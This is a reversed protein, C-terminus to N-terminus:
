DPMEENLDWEVAVIGSSARWSCVVCSEETDTWYSKSGDEVGKEGFYSDLKALFGEYESETMEDNATWVVSSVEDPESVLCHFSVKGVRGMLEVNERQEYAERDMSLTFKESTEFGLYELYPQMSDRSRLVQSGSVCSFVALAVAVVAIAVILPVAKKMKAKIESEREKRAENEEEIRRAREDALEMLTEEDEINCEGEGLWLKCSPCKEAGVSVQGCACLTWGDHREVAYPAAAVSTRCCRQELQLARERLAGETLGLFAGQPFPEPESSSAWDASPMSLEIIRGQAWVADGRSLEVPKLPYDGEPSIDADLFEVVFNESSGDKFFCSLAAKFSLVKESCVNQVKAQLFAKGTEVDRSVQLATFALPCGREWRLCREERETESDIRFVVKYYGM